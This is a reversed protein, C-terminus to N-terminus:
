VIDNIKEALVKFRNIFAEKLYKSLSHDPFRLNEISKNYDNFDNFDNYDNFPIEVNIFQNNNVNFYPPVYNCMLRGDNFLTCIKNYMVDTTITTSGSAFIGEAEIDSPITCIKYIKYITSGFRRCICIEQFNISDINGWSKSLDEDNKLNTINIKLKRNNLTNNSEEIEEDNFRTIFLQSDNIQKLYIPKEITADMAQMLDMLQKIHEATYLKQNTHNKFPKKDNVCQVYYNYLSPAYVCETKYETKENNTYIKLRLTLQLKALPYENDSFDQTTLTDNVNICKNNLDKGDYLVKQQISERTM